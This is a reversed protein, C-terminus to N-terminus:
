LATILEIRSNRARGEPSASSAIPENHVSEVTWTIAPGLELSTLAVELWEARRDTLDIAAKDLSGDGHVRVLVQQEQGDKLSDLGAVLLDMGEVSFRSSGNEFVALSSVRVTMYNSASSVSIQGREIEPELARAVSKFRSPSAGPGQGPTRAKLYRRITGVLEPNKVLGTDLLFELNSAAQDPEAIEIMAIIRANEAAHRGSERNEASNFVAIGANVMGALAAALVAVILPSNWAGNKETM